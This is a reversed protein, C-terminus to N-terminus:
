YASGIPGTNSGSGSYVSSSESAIPMTHFQSGSYVSSSESGASGPFSEYNPDVHSPKKPRTKFLKEFWMKLNFFLTVSNLKSLRKEIILFVFETQGVKIEFAKFKVFRTDKTSKSSNEVTEFSEANEFIEKLFQRKLIFIVDGGDFKSPAV